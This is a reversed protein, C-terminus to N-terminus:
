LGKYTCKNITQVEDRLLGFVNQTSKDEPIVNRRQWAGCAFAYFDDCPAVRTDLNELVRSAARSYTLVRLHSVVHMCM